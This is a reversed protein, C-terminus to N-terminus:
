LIPYTQLIGKPPAFGNEAMRRIVSFTMKLFEVGLLCHYLTLLAVIVGCVM